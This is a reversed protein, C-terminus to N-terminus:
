FVYLCFVHLEVVEGAIAYCTHVCTPATHAASHEMPFMELHNRKKEKKTKRAYHVAQSTQPVRLAIALVAIPLFHTM